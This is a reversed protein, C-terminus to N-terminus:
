MFSVVLVWCMVGGSMFSVVVLWWMFDGMGGM